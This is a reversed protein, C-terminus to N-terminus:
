HAQVRYFVQPLKPNVTIAQSLNTQTYTTLASWVATPGLNTSYQVQCTAGVQCMVTLTRNTGSSTSAQLIPQNNVVTVTFSAMATNNVPGGDDVLVTIITTGSAGTSPTFTLTGTLNPSTYTVVPNPILKPNSSFATVSLGQNENTSGSTIGSLQVTQRGANQAIVLNALPNLTPTANPVPVAYSAEASYDSELGAATHTTAAFYYTVGTVLNSVVANTSNGVAIINTYTRSATGYYVNYGTVSTDPSPDWALAVAPSLALLPSSLTVMCLLIFIKVM